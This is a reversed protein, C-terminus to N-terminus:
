ILRKIQELTFEIVCKKIKGDPHKECEIVKSIIKFQDREALEIDNQRSFWNSMVMEANHQIDEQTLNVAQKLQNLDVMDVKSKPEFFAKIVKGEESYEVTAIGIKEM